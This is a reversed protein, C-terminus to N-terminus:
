GSKALGLVKTGPGFSEAWRNADELYGDTTQVRASYYESLYARVYPLHAECTGM